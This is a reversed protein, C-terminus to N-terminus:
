PLQHLAPLTELRPGKIERLRGTTADYKLEILRRDPLLVELEYHPPQDRDLEAELVRGGFVRQAENMVSILPLLGGRALGDRAGAQVDFAGCALMLVALFFSLSRM